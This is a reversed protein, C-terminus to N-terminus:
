ILAAMGSSSLDDMVMQSEVTSHTEGDSRRGAIVADISRKLDRVINAKSVYPARLESVHRSLLSVDNQSVIIVESEPVEKRIIRTAEIGDMRPMSLDMLIIRPRFQRAKAVAEEGDAAEGCVRWEGRSEVLSRLKRRVAPHDDAILIDVASM